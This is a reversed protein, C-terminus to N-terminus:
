IGMYIIASHSIIVLDDSARQQHGFSSNEEPWRNTHRCPSHVLESMGEACRRSRQLFTKRDCIILTKLNKKKKPHGEGLLSCIPIGNLTSVGPGWLVGRIVKAARQGKTWCWWWSLIDDRAGCCKLCVHRILGLCSEVHPKTWLGVQFCSWPGTIYDIMASLGYIYSEAGPNCIAPPILLLHM